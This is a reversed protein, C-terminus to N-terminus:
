STPAETDAAEARIREEHEAVFRNMLLHVIAKQDDYGLTAYLAEIQLRSPSVTPTAPIEALTIASRAEEAQRRYSDITGVDCAPEGQRTAKDAATAAFQDARRHWAEIERRVLGLPVDRVELVTGHEWALAPHKASGGGRPFGGDIVVVGQGLRVAYDRSPRSVIERGFLWLDPAGANFADLNLRVSTLAVPEDSALPNIGFLEACLAAVREADRVDFRWTKTGAHWRGGLAKARTPFQPHYPSELKLEVTGNQLKQETLTVVNTAM